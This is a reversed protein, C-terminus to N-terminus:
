KKMPPGLKKAVLDVVSEPAFRRLDVYGITPRLGDLETEDFRAPLVYEDEELARALASRREHRAWPKEAYEKSIFMVCVRSGKRYVWDFYEALDKGWLDAQQDDDYFVRYKRDKLGQAVLEVYSRQEGAFSLCVDFKQDRDSGAPSPTPAAPSPSPAGSGGGSFREFSVLDDAPRASFTPPEAAKRRQAEIRELERLEDRRERKRAAADKQEQSAQSRELNRRAQNLSESKRAAQRDFDAAKQELKAAREDAKSADRLKRERQSDSTTRTIGSRHRSAAQREKAAKEREAGAKKQLDALEKSRQDVQRQYMSVSM